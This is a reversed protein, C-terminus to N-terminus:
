GILTQIMAECLVGKVMQDFRVFMPSSNLELFVLQKTKPDAQISLKLPSETIKTVSVRLVKFIKM